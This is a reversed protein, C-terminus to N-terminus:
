PVDSLWSRPYVSNNSRSLAVRGALMPCFSVTAVRDTKLSAGRIRRRRDGRADKEEEERSRAYDRSFTKRLLTEEQRKGQREGGGTGLSECETIGCRAVELVAERASESLVGRYRPEQVRRTTLHADRSGFCAIVDSYVQDRGELNEGPRSTAISKHALVPLSGAPRDLRASPARLSNM